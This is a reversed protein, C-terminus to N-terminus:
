SCREGQGDVARRSQKARYRSLYRAIDRGRRMARSTLYWLASPAGTVPTTSAIGAASRARYRAIGRAPARHRAFRRAAGHIAPM